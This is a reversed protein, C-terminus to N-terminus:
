VTPRRSAQGDASQGCWKGGRAAVSRVDWDEGATALLPESKAIKLMAELRPRSESGSAWTAEKKADDGSLGHSLLRYRSRAAEKAGQLVRERRDETWWHKSWLLWGGRGFDYRLQDKYQHAFFEANGADTRPFPRKRRATSNARPPQTAM